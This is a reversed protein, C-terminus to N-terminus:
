EESGFKGFYMGLSRIDNTDIYELAKDFSGVFVDKGDCSITWELGNKILTHLKM